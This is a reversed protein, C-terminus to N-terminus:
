KARHHREGIERRFRFHALTFNVPATQKGDGVNGFVFDDGDFAPVNNISFSQTFFDRRQKARHFNLDIISKNM